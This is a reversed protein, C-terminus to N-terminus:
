DLKYESNEQNFNYYRSETYKMVEKDNMWALYKQNIDKEQIPRLYLRETKLIELNM